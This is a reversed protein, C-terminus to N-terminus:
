YRAPLYNHLLPLSYLVIWNYWDEAKFGLHHKQINTPPRGFEMPMTKHNQEIIKTIENWDYSPIKYDTDNLIENNFFKEIFHRYMHPSINEFFAHMIDIPFSTPFEISHLELLISCGNIGILFTINLRIYLYRM